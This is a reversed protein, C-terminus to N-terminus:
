EGPSQVVLAVRRQKIVQDNIPDVTRQRRRRHKRLIAARYILLSLVNAEDTQASSMM